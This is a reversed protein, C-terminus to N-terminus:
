FTGAITGIGGGEVPALSASVTVDGWELDGQMGETLALAIALGAGSGVLCAVGAITPHFNGSFGGIAVYVLAGAAGGTFMGLSGYWSRGSSMHLGTASLVSGTVLGAGLGLLALGFGVRAGDSTGSGSIQPAITLALFAGATGGWLGVNQIMQVQSPHPQLLWATAGFAVASGLTTGFLVHGLTDGPVGGAIGVSLGAIGMGFRLGMAISAPVGAPLGHDIQDLGFPILLFLGAGIVPAVAYVRGTDYGAIDSAWGTEAFLYTAFGAGAAASMIYFDVLEGDDRRHYPLVEPTEPPATGPPLEPDYTTPAALSGSGEGYSAPADPVNGGAALTAEASAVRVLLISGEPALLRLAAAHGVAANADGAEADAEVAAALPELLADDVPAPETGETIALLGRVRVLTTSREAAFPLVVAARGRCLALRGEACDLLAADLLPDFDPPTQARATTAFTGLVLALALSRLLAM